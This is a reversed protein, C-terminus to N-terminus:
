GAVDDDPTSTDSARADKKTADKTPFLEGSTLDERSGRVAKWVFPLVLIGGFLILMQAMGPDIGGACGALPAMALPVLSRWAGAFAPRTRPLPAGDARRHALYRNM